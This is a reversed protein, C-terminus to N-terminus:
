SADGGAAVWAALEARSGVGLKRYASALENAVTRASRGRGSAVQANSCGSLVLAVVAREAETLVAPAEGPAWAPWELM